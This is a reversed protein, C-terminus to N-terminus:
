FQYNTRTEHCYSTHINYYDHACKICVYPRFRLGIKSKVSELNVVNVLPEPFFRIFACIEETLKDEKHTPNEMLGSFTVM